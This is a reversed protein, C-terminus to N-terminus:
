ATAVLIRITTIAIIAVVAGAIILYPTTPSSRPRDDFRRLIVMSGVGALIGGVVAPLSYSGFLLGFILYAGLFLLSRNRAQAHEWIIVIYAGSIGWLVGSLGYGIQGALVMGAAGFAASAFFLVLYRRRGAQREFSPSILVLFLLSLIVSIVVRADASSPYVFASTFYRWVEWVPGPIAALGVFPANATVFGVIWLLVVIGGISWTLVPASGPILVDRVVQAWRPRERSPVARTMRKPAAKAAPRAAPEWRVSGGTERVCDPCRVGAPTLIQCEPCITRGCRQCLTWSTRDPHRYCVSGDVEADPSSV